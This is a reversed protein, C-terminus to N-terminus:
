PTVAKAGPTDHPTVADPQGSTLVTQLRNVGDYTYTWNGNVSDNATLVNGNGAYTLNSLAYALGVPLSSLRGRTDYSRSENLLGNGSGLTAATLGGFPGHATINLLAQSVM